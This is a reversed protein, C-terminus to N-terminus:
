RVGPGAPAAAQPPLQHSATSEYTIDFEYERLLTLKELEEKPLDLKVVGPRGEFVAFQNHGPEGNPDIFQVQNVQMCKLVVKM